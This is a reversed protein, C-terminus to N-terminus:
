PYLVISITCPAPSHHGVSFCTLAPSHFPVASLRPIDTGLFTVCSLAKQSSSFIALESIPEPVTTRMYMAQKKWSHWKIEQQKYFALELKTYLICPSTCILVAAVTEIRVCHPLLGGFHCVRPAFRLASTFLLVM